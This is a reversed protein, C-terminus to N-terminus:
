WEDLLPQIANRVPHGKIAAHAATAAIAVLWGVLFVGCLAACYALLVLLEM